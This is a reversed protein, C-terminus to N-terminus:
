RPPPFSHLAFVIFIVESGAKLFFLHYIELGGYAFDVHDCAILSSLLSPVKCGLIQKCWIWKNIENATDTM